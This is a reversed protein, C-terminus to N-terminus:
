AAGAKPTEAKKEDPQQLIEDLTLGSLRELGKLLRWLAFIMVILSPVVIVPWSWLTMRGLEANFEPTDPLSKIIIRALVFNLVASVLFSAALMWSSNALLQLFAPRQARAELAAEVRPVNIMQENFLMTRVLPKKTWQSIVVTLGILTPVIAEKVAFWFPELKLLGLGGTALTSVFGLAALFNFNRRKVLDYLGYALPFALAVVLAVKPELHLLKAGKTLMFSPAAVNCALNLLLNEKQPPTTASSSM